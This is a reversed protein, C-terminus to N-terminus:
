ASLSAPASIRLETMAFQFYNGGTESMRLSPPKLDEIAGRARTMREFQKLIAPSPEVCCRLNEMSITIVIKAALSYTNPAKESRSALEIIFLTQQIPMLHKNCSSLRSRLSPREILVEASQGALWQGCTLGISTLFHLATFM